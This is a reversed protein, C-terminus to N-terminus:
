FLINGKRVYWNTPTSERPFTCMAKDANEEESQGIDEGPVCLKNM